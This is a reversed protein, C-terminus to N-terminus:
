IGQDSIICYAMNISTRDYITDSERKRMYKCYVPMIETIIGYLPWLLRSHFPSLLPAINGFVFGPLHATHSAAANM